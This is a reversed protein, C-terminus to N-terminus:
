APWVFCMSAPIRGGPAWIEVGPRPVKATAPTGMWARLMACPGAGSSQSPLSTTPIQNLIYTPFRHASPTNVSFWSSQPAHLEANYSSKISSYTYLSGARLSSSVWRTSAHGRLPRTRWGKAAGWFTVKCSPSGRTVGQIQVVGVEVRTSETQRGQDTKEM